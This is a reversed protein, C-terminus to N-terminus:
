LLSRGDADTTLVESLHDFIPRITRCLGEVEDLFGGALVEQDTFPHRWLFQRLRLLEIAEHDKAFGRPVSAVKEGQVEGFGTRVAKAGLLKRWTRPDQDIDTRIRKLDAPEPGMFGCALASGGPRVVLFYGGRLQPKVRALRAGFRPKYPPQDKHFRQDTYIRMLSAKGSETAIRDHRKMRELWADAFAAMDAHAQVYREKNADFWIKHNHEALDSLFALTSRQISAPHGKM